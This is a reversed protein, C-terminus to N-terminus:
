KKVIRPNGKLSPLAGVNEHQLFPQFIVKLVGFNLLVFM